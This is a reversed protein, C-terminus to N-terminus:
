KRSTPWGHKIYDIMQQLDADRRTTEAIEKLSADSVRVDELTNLSALEDSLVYNDNDHIDQKQSLAARSLMNAVYMRKGPKYIVLLNYKQLQLLMRQLRKPATILTKKLITELPKHDSHITVVNRGLIYHNFKQCAYVIALCEMEIEAYRQETPTLARSAFLVPQGDQLLTAGLGVKSSDCEITVEVNVDCYHLVPSDIVATKIAEVADTHKSTWMWPAGKDTLCHLPECIHSLRPMFRSVYNVFGLLRQVSTVDHPVPMDVIAKVKAPDAKVGEPTLLHGMYSVLKLKLKLKSKNFKLNNERARTLLNFFNKDHDVIAEAETDGCGFVLIDDAIVYVGQLDETIEHQRQQFKKSAPSIGFPM